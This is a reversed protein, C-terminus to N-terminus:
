QPEASQRLTEWREAAIRLVEAVVADVSLNTSDVVYADDAARLPAVSRNADRADREAIERSLATLSVGIGKEKLQKHRREAREEASATLYVKVDADPFIVTGMDRGDAVLGPPARYGRQLDVLADRVEPHAAVLSALEGGRETRIAATVDEGALWIQEEGTETQGFRAALESAVGALGPGDKFSVGAQDAALGVLRYLAGSDLLHWGLRAAVERAVTGKGSGSPGDITLVPIM